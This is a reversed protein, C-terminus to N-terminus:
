DPTEVLPRREGEAGVAILAGPVCRSVLFDRAGAARRRSLRLNASESGVRDAHGTIRIRSPVASQGLLLVFNDLIAESAPSIAASGSAFTLLNWGVCAPPPREPRDPAQVALAALSLYLSLM